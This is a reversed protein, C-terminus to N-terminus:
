LGWAKRMRRELWVAGVLLCSPMAALICLVWEPMANTIALVVTSVMISLVIVTVVLQAVMRERFAKKLAQAPSLCEEEARWQALSVEAQVADRYNRVDWCTLLSAGGRVYNFLRFNM